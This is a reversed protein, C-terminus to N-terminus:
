VKMRGAREDTWVVLAHSVPWPMYIDRIGCQFLLEPCIPSIFTGCVLSMNMDGM